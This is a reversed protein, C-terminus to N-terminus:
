LNVTEDDFSYKEAETINNKPPPRKYWYKPMSKITNKM